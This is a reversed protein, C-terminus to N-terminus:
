IRRYQHMHIYIYIYTNKKKQRKRAEGSANPLEWALPGIPDVAAVRCWLWLLALASGHRHGVGCSM